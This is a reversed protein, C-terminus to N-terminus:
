WNNLQYMRCDLNQKKRIHILTRVLSVLSDYDYGIVYTSKAAYAFKKGCFQLLLVVIEHKTLTSVCM